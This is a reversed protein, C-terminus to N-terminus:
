RDRELRQVLRENGQGAAISHASRGAADVISRDAGAAILMEIQATRDFLAATMLATQGARNRANVDCGVKLLREAIADYGKFAVGMQATNGQVADPVCADARAAILINVTDLHGNYSALILPTFGRADYANVDVGAKTLASILDSRGTRAAEFLMEQRREPSSLDNSIITASTAAAMLVAIFMTFM